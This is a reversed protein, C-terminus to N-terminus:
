TQFSYILSTRLSLGFWLCKLRQKPALFATIITDYEIHVSCINLVCEILMETPWICSQVTPRYYLSNFMATQYLVPSIQRKGTFRHQWLILLWKMGWFCEVLWGLDLVGRKAWTLLYSQAALNQKTEQSEHNNWAAGHWSFYLYLIQMWKDLDM